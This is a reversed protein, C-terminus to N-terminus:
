VRPLPVAVAPVCGRFSAGIPLCLVCLFLFLFSTGEEQEEPGAARPVGRVGCVCESQDDVDVVIPDGLPNAEAAADESAASTLGLANTLPLCYEM